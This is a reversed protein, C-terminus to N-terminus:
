IGLFFGGAGMGRDFWCGLVCDLLAAYTCNKKTGSAETTPRAALIVEGARHAIEILFDHIEQLNPDEEKPTEM